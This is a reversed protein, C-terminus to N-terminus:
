CIPKYDLLEMQWLRNLKIKTLCECKGFSLDVEEAIHNVALPHSNIFAMDFLRKCNSKEPLPGLILFLCLHEPPRPSTSQCGFPKDSLAQKFTRLTSSILQTPASGLMACSALAPVSLSLLTPVLPSLFTPVFPRSLLAPMPLSLLAPGPFCSSSPTPLGIRSSLNPMPLCSLLAPM